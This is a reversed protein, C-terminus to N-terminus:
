IQDDKSSIFEEVCLRVIKEISMIFAEPKNSLLREINQLRSNSNEEYLLYDANVGLADSIDRLVYISMAKNGRELNACFSASIGVKEALEEQTLHNETRFRRLNNGMIRLLENKDM